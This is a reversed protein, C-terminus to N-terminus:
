SLSSSPTASRLAQPLLEDEIDIALEYSLLHEKTKPDYAVLIQHLAAHLFEYREQDTLRDIRRGVKKWWSEIANVKRKLAQQRAVREQLEAQTKALNEKEDHLRTINRKVYEPRELLEMNTLLADIQREKQEIARTVKDLEVQTVVDEVYQKDQQAQLQERLRESNTALRRMEEWVKQEVEDLNLSPMGCSRPHPDPKKSLCCYLRERDTRLREPLSARCGPCASLKPDAKLAQTLRIECKGCRKSEKIKGFFNRSCNKCRLLSQLLYTRKTTTSPRNQWHQQLAQRLAQFQEQSILPPVSVQHGFYTMQGAYLPNELIRIVTGYKWVYPGKGLRTNKTPVELSNLHKAIRLAGWGELAKKVLVDTYVTAEEPDIELKRDKGKRYGYPPVWSMWVGEGARRRRGERYREVIVSREFDAFSALQVFFLKGQPTSTDYPEAASKFVVGCREFEDLVLELM